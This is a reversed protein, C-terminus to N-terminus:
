MFGTRIVAAARCNGCYHDEYYFCRPPPPPVTCVGVIGPRAPSFFFRMRENVDREKYINKEGKMRQEAAWTIIYSESWLPARLIIEAFSLAPRVHLSYDAPLWL